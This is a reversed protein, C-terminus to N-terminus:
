TTFNCAKGFVKYDQGCSREWLDKRYKEIENKILVNMGDTNEMMAHIVHCFSYIFLCVGVRAEFKSLINAFFFFFPFLVLIVLFRQGNRHCLLSSM